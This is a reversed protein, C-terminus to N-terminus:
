WVVVLTLPVSRPRCRGSMEGKCRDARWLSQKYRGAVTRDRPHPSRLCRDRRDGSAREEAMKTPPPLLLLM